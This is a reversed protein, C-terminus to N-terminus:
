AGADDREVHIDSIIGYKKKIEGNLSSIAELINIAVQQALDPKMKVSTQLVNKGKIAFHRKDEYPVSINESDPTADTMWFSIQLTADTETQIISSAFGETSHVMFGPIRQIPQYEAKEDTTM